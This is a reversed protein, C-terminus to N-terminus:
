NQRSDTPSQALVKVPEVTSEGAIRLGDCALEISRISIRHRSNRTLQHPLDILAVPDGDQETWTMIIGNQLLSSQIREAWFGIPIAVVGTRVKAIHVAIQNPKDTCFVNGAVHVFGQFQHSQVQFALEFCEDAIEIRPSQIVAPVAHPFKEPLDAVVWGNIEDETLMASWRDTLRIQNSLDAITREFQEGALAHAAASVNLANMYFRPPRQMTRYVLFLTAVAMALCVTVILCARPLGLPM